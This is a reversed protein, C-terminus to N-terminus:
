TARDPKDLWANLTGDPKAMLKELRAVEADIQAEEREREDADLAGVDIAKNTVMWHRYSRWAHAFMAVRTPALKAKVANYFEIIEMPDDVVWKWRGPGPEIRGVGSRLLMQEAVAQEGSVMLSVARRRGRAQALGFVSFVGACWDANAQEDNTV